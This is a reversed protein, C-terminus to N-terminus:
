RGTTAKASGKASFFDFGLLEEPDFTTGELKAAFHLHPGTVRGTKGLLGVPEGKKVRQGNRVLFKSLHFYGTFLGAGHSVLVTNGSSFCDRALRVIGDNSARVPDGIKGDLDLGMHLSKLAGNFVRREGFRSNRPAGGRPDLFNSRFQPPGFPVRYAVNIAKADSFIRRLEQKSPRTFKPDVKLTTSETERLRIEIELEVALGKPDAGVRVSVHSRGSAADAPVAGFGRLQGPAIEFLSFSEDGLHISVDGAAFPGAIQVEFLEGPHLRAPQLVAIGDGLSADVFGGPELGGDPAEGVGADPRSRPSSPPLVSSPPQVAAHERAAEDATAQGADPAAPAPPSREAAAAASLFVVASCMLLKGMLNALRSPGEAFFGSRM